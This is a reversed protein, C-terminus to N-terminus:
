SSLTRRGEISFAPFAQFHISFWIAIGGTAAFFSAALSFGTERRCERRCFYCHRFRLLRSFFSSDTAMRAYLGEKFALWVLPAFLYLCRRTPPRLIALLVLLLIAVILALILPATEGTTSMASSYGRTIEFSLAIWRRWAAWDFLVVQLTFFTASFAAVGILLTQHSRHTGQFWIFVWSGFMVTLSILAMSWKAEPTLAALVSALVASVMATYTGDLSVLCRACVAFSVKYEPSLGSACLCLYFAFFCCLTALHRHLRLCVVSFLSVHLALWFVIPAAFSGSAGIIRPALLHGLPGYTFAVNSGFLYENSAALSTLAFAWSADLGTGLPEYISPFTCLFVYLVLLSVPIWLLIGRKSGLGRNSRTVRIIM